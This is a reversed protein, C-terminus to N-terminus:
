PEEEWQLQLLHELLHFRWLWRQILSWILAAAGIFLYDVPHMTTLSFFTRLPPVAMVVLYVVLLGLLVLVLNQQRERSTAM